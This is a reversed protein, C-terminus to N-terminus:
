QREYFFSRVLSGDANRPPVANDQAQPKREHHKVRYGLQASNPKTDAMFVNDAAITGNVVDAYRGETTRLSVNGEFSGQELVDKVYPGKRFLFNFRANDIAVNDKVQLKGPNFNDTFGDMGNRYALSGSIAHPVPLGEGGLKFGNNNNFMAVSNEIVVAGNPGDEVKNFLDYGDDANGYSLANVIRNGEGVRMKVAFGDANINGPDQNGYSSCNEILNHAAWLSRGVDAPSAVWIGTDDCHHATLGLLHNYSGALNLPKKTVTFGTLKLYNAAVDLGAFVAQASGSLVKLAGPQGSVSAPLNTLAYSGDLLEVTGGAAVLALATAVDLPSDATGQNNSQGHPGAVLYPAGLLAQETLTLSEGVAMASADTPLLVYHVRDGAGHPLMLEHHVMAGAEVQLTAQALSPDAKLAAVPDFEPAASREYQESQASQDSWLYLTGATNARASFRYSREGPKLYPACDLEVRASSSEPALATVETAASSLELKADLVTMAANRSAFFGVYYREPDLVTLRDARAVELTQFENSDLPAYSSKIGADTRELRLKFTREATLDLQQAIPRRLMEIKPNGWPYQVKDRALQMVQVTSHDSKDQTMVATMVMNSSAPFEEIGPQLQESRAPGLIDRVLLGCGEQAAPLAGNEPGFQDIRVVAELVFNMDFPLTTYYFTLGDHSNGIKGGRSEVKFPVSLARGPTQASAVTGDSLYTYNVGIKNPLVNTAFNIDTSQGFSISHWELDSVAVQSTSTCGGVLAVMLAAGWMGRLARSLQARKM